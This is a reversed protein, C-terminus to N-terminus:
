GNGSVPDPVLEFIRAGGYLRHRTLSRWKTSLFGAQRLTVPFGAAKSSIMEGNKPDCGAELTSGPLHNECIGNGGFAGCGDCMGIFVDPRWGEGLVLSALRQNSAKIRLVALSRCGFRSSEHSVRTLHGAFPGDVWPETAKTTIVTEEDKFSIPGQRGEPGTRDVYVFVQPGAIERGTQEKLFLPHLFTLAMADTGASAYLATSAQDDIWGLDVARAYASRISAM